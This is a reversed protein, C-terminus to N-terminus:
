YDRRIAVTDLTNAVPV